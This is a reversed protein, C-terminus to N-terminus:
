KLLLILVQPIPTLPIVVSIAVWWPFYIISSMLHVHRECKCFYCKNFIALLYLTLHLVVLGIRVISCSYIWCTEFLFFMLTSSSFCFTPLFIEQWVHLSIVNEPLITLCWGLSMAAVGSSNNHVLTFYGVHQWDTFSTSCRVLITWLSAELM